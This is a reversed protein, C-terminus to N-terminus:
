FMQVRILSFKNTYCSTGTLKSEGEDGSGPLTQCSNDTTKTMTTRLSSVATVSFQDQNTQAEGSAKPVTHRGCNDDHVDSHYCQYRFSKFM